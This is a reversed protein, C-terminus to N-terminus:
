EDIKAQIIEAQEKAEKAGNRADLTSKALKEM